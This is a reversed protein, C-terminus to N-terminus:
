APAYRAVLCALDDQVIPSWASAAQLMGDRVAAPGAPAHAEILACLRDRGFQERHPNRAETFGDTHIVLIDGPQLRLTQNPTSPRIDDLIGIWVGATPIVEAKGTANRYVILDEHSGAFEVTGDEFFRSAVMTVHEDKGLRERINPTLSRNVSSLLEAAEMDPRSHVLTSVMSQIMLTILGPLLGHGTVDGMCLWAGGPVPIVDYYDGGVQQAPVMAACVELSPVECKKPSLATQIQRAIAIEGELQLQDARERAATEQIVRRHLRDLKVAASIYTRLTECILPNAEGDVAFVGFVDAEFTLPMVVWSAREGAQLSAPLLEARDYPPLVDARSRGDRMLLVPRALEPHAEDLMAVCASRVGLRPLWRELEARMREPGLAVSLRQGAYRLEIFRECLDLSARGEARSSAESILNLGGFWLRDLELANTVGAGDLKRKLATVGLRMSDLSVGVEAATEVVREVAGCFQGHKGRLEDSIADILESSRGSWWDRAGAGFEALLDVLAARSQQVYELAEVRAPPPPTSWPQDVRGCGCSQRLIVRPSFCSLPEASRGAILDLLVDLAREAMSDAPQAVSTLPRSSVRALSSDDFGVVRVQHPVAIDRARLADLAGLAMYDNAAVVADIPAGRELLEQMAAHGTPLTFRGHVVLEAAPTLGHAILSERYGEYRENAEQNDGPGGIFAINKCRHKELLHDVAKRMGPRNDVIISPVGPLEVGISVVPLPSLRELLAIVSSLGGFNMLVGSLVIAGDVVAPSVWEFIVNQTRENLDAHELERGVIVLLDCGERRARRELADRLSLQYASLLGNVILGIRRRRAGSVSM